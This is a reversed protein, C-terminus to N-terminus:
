GLKIVKGDGEAKAARRMEEAAEALLAQAAAILLAPDPATSARALLARALAEPSIGV